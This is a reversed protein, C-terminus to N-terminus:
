KANNCNIFGTFINECGEKQKGQYRMDIYKPPAGQPLSSNYFLVEIDTFFQKLKEKVIKFLFSKLSKQLSCFLYYYGSVPSHTFVKKTLGYCNKVPQWCNFM